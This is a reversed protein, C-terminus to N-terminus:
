RRKSTRRSRLPSGAFTSRKELEALVQPSVTSAVATRGTGVARYRRVAIAWSLGPWRLLAVRHYGPATSTSCTSCCPPSAWWTSGPRAQRHAMRRDGQLAPLQRLDGLGRVRRDGEPDWGWYRGWAAEAWIAGCIVAFTYLPFAFIAIRYATRDLSDASPLMRVLGGLRGEPSAHRSLLFMVSTVGSVM